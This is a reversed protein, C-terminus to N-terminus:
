EHETELKLTRIFRTSLMIWLCELLIGPLMYLLPVWLMKGHDITFKELLFSYILYIHQIGLLLWTVVCIQMFRWPWLAGKVVLAFFAGSLVLNPVLTSTVYIIVESRNSDVSPPGLFKNILIVSLSYIVILFILIYRFM